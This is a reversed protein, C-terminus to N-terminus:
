LPFIFNGASDAKSAEQEPVLEDIYVYQDNLKIDFIFCKRMRDTLSVGAMARRYIEENVQDYYIVYPKSMKQQARQLHRLSQEYQFNKYYLMALYTIDSACGIKLVLKMMKLSKDCIFARKKSSIEESIQISLFRSFIQLSKCLLHQVTVTQFLSLRYTQIQEMSIFVEIIEELSSSRLEGESALEVFLCIDLRCSHIISGEDTRFTLTRNLIPM